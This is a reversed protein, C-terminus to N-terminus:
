DICPQVVTRQHLEAATRATLLAATDTNDQSCLNVIPAASPSSVVNKPAFTHDGFSLSLGPLRNLQSFM